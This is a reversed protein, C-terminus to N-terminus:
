GQNGCHLLLTEVETMGNQGFIAKAFFSHLKWVKHEMVIAKKTFYLSLRSVLFFRRSFVSSLLLIFDCLIYKKLLFFPFIFAAIIVPM